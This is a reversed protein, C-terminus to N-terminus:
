KSLSYRIIVSPDDPSVFFSLQVISYVSFLQAVSHVVSLHHSSCKSVPEFPYSIPLMGTTYKNKLRPSGIKRGRM